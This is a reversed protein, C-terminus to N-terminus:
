FGWGPRSDVMPMLRIQVGNFTLVTLSGEQNYPLAFTILTQRIQLDNFVSMSLISGQYYLPLNMPQPETVAGSFDSTQFAQVIPQLNGHRDVAVPTGTCGAILVVGATLALIVFSNKM